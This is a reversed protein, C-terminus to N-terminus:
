AARTQAVAEAAWSWAIHAQEAVVDLGGFRQAMAETADSDDRELARALDLASRWPGTQQLLAQVAAEPLQLPRLADALPMSLMVEMLSFLGTTFLAPPPAGLSPALLELLRARALAVEHLARSTPRGDAGALLLFTLWRYLGNRGLLMVAQEVSEAPRSLGLLPSNSYRLLRYVLDVDTRLDRAVTDLDEDRAIRNLLQCLGQWRPALIKAKPVSSSLDANGAALDVGGQLAAELADINPLGTAIIRASPDARRCVELARMIEPLPMHQCEILVFQGGALPTGLRGLQAGHRRLEALSQL